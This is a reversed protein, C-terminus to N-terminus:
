HLHFTCSDPAQSVHPEARHGALRLKMRLNAGTPIFSHCLTECISILLKFAISKIVKPFGEIEECLGHETERFGWARLKERSGGSGMLTVWSSDEMKWGADGSHVKEWLWCGGVTKPFGRTLFGGFAHRPGLRRGCLSAAAVSARQLLSMAAMAVAPLLPVPSLLPLRCLGNVLSRSALFHGHQTLAFRLGQRRHAHSVPLPTM